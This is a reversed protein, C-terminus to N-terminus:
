SHNAAWRGECVCVCLCGLWALQWGQTGSGAVTCAVGQWYPNRMLQAARRV